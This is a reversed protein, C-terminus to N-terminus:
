HRFLGAARESVSHLWGPSLGDAPEPRGFLYGQALTIGLRELVPAQAVRDIGEAVVRQGFRRALGGLADIITVSREDAPLGAVFSRDIKVIDIPLSHLWSLSSFGTGFDDLAIRVGSARFDTLVEHARQVDALLVTETIEIVLASGELGARALADAAIAVTGPLLLEPACMNVSISLDPLGLRRRIEGLVLCASALSWRGIEVIAGCEVAVQLFAHPSIIDGNPRRWRLLAELSVCRGSRLDVIPQFHLEFQGLDLARRLDQEIVARALVREGAARSFGRVTNGGGSRADLAALRAHRLADGGQHSADSGAGAWGVSLTAFIARSQLSLPTSLAAQWQQGVERGREPGPAVLLAAFENPATRAVLSGPPTAKTLRAAIERALEGVRRPGLVSLAFDYQDVSAVLVAHPVGGAVAAEVAADFRAANPLATESDLLSRRVLEDEARRAQERELALAVQTAVAWAFNQDEGSWRRTQGTQEHCLIGALAGFARVPVDLMSRIGLPKLYAHELERTRSDEGADEADIVLDASVAQFYGPFDAGSLRVPGSAPFPRREHRCVQRIEVRSDDFEWFSVADVDLTDSLVELLRRLVRDLDSFDEALIGMLASRYRRCRDEAVTLRGSLERLGARRARADRYADAQVKM